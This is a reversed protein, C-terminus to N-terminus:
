PEDVDDDREESSNTVIKIEAADKSIEAADKRESPRYRPRSTIPVQDSEYYNKIITAGFSGVAPPKDPPGTNGMAPPKDPPPGPSGMAPPKDPPPGSNGLAPPKDPPGGTGGGSEKEVSAAAACLKEWNLPCRVTSDFYDNLFSVWSKDEEPDTFAKTFAYYNYTRMVGGYPRAWPFYISLGHSFQYHPGYYDSYVVINGFDLPKNRLLTKIVGCVRILAPDSACYTELRDCLDFIDTYSENWYSQAEWHALLIGNRGAQTKLAARLARVLEALPEDLMTVKERDLSCMSLDSSYGAQWFDEGNYFSLNQVGKLLLKVLQNPYAEKELELTKGDFEELKCFIKKLLQRYPWSGPFAMGQTGVLYRATGQLEYALEVSNMACSHFGVLHLEGKRFDNTFRSATDRVPTRVDAAFKRLIKGLQVLTIASNDDPDPLFTDNGVITGHGMMFLMYNKARFESTAVQLFYGLSASATMPPLGKVKKDEAVNHAYPDRGDGIITPVKGDKIRKLKRQHNVNFIRANVGNCNPDFYALVTADKYFGADTLEKLQSIMSASLMSDGALYFLLLWESTQPPGAKTPDFPPIEDSVSM